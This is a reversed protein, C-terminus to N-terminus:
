RLYLNKFDPRVQGLWLEFPDIELDDGGEPNMDRDSDSSEDNSCSGNDVTLDIEEKHRVMAQPVKDYIYGDYQLSYYPWSRSPSRLVKAPRDVVFRLLVIDNLCATQQRSRLLGLHHGPLAWGGGSANRLTAARRWSVM